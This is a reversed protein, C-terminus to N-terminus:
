HIMYKHSRFNEDTAGSCCFNGESLLTKIDDPRLGEQGMWRTNKDVMSNSVIPAASTDTETLTWSPSMFQGSESCVDKVNASVSVM